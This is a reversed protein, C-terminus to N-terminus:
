DEFYSVPSQSSFFLDMSTWCIQSDCYINVRMVMRNNVPVGNRVRYIHSINSYNSTKPLHNLCTVSGYM